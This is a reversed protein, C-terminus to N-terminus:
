TEECSGSSIGQPSRYIKGGKMVFVVRGLARIDELPNGDVAIVDALMGAKLDGIEGSMLLAEAARSTASVLAEVASQGATVRREFELATTGSSIWGAAADTGFVIRVGM